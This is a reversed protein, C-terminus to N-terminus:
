DERKAEKLKRACMGCLTHKPNDSRIRRGCKCYRKIAERRIFSKACM